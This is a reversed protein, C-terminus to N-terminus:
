QDQHHDVHVGGQHQQREEDGGGQVDGISLDPQGPVSINPHYIINDKGPNDMVHGIDGQDVHGPEGLPEQLGGHHHHHHCDEQLVGEGTVLGEQAWYVTTYKDKDSNMGTQCTVAISETSGALEHKQKNAMSGELLM